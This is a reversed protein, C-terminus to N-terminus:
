RENREEYDLSDVHEGAEFNLSDVHEGAKNFCLVSVSGDQNVQTVTSVYTKINDWDISDLDFYPKGGLVEAFTPNTFFEFAQEPSIASIWEWFKEEAEQRNRADVEITYDMPIIATVEHKTM